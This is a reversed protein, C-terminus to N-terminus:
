RAAPTVNGSRFRHGWWIQRSICWDRIGAMWQDYVPGWREPVFSLRATAIPRSRRRALRKMRVFWQDSLRPEVVHRLSLLPRM